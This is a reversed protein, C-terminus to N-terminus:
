AGSTASRWDGLVAQWCALAAVAATDARLLRPGLSVATVFPLKRVADLETPSFGDEPGTLIAWPGAAHMDGLAEAIPTGFGSEDCFILRRPPAWNALVEALPRAPHIAPVTLRDTQQAAEVANAAVREYNVRTVHTYETMVPHLGATGLETAKRVLDDIGARIPAFLLWIDPEPPQARHKEEINTSAWGKGCGAVRGTWEGDSGNFLAIADGAALHLVDFLYNAQSPTFDITAGAVLPETVFIRPRSVPRDAGIRSKTRAM